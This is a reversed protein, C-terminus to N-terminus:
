TDIAGAAEGDSVLAQSRAEIGLAWDTGCARAMESLRQLAGAARGPAGSRAAAEILEALGWLSFQQQALM